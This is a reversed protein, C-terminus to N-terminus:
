IKFTSNGDNCLKRMCNQEDSGDACDYNSDCHKKIDICQNNECQFQSFSCHKNTSNCSIEDEGGPCDM